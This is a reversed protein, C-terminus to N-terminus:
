NVPIRCGCNPCHEVYECDENNYNLNDYCNDCCLVVADNWNKYKICNRRDYTVSSAINTCGEVECLKVGDPSKM